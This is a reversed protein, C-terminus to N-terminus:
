VIKQSEPLDKYLINVDLRLGILCQFCRIILSRGEGSRLFQMSAVFNAEKRVFTQKCEKGPFRWGKGAVIPIWSNVGRLSM